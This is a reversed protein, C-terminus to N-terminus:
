GNWRVASPRHRWPHPLVSNTFWSDLFMILMHMVLVEGAIKQVFRSTATDVRAPLADHNVDYWANMSEVALSGQVFGSIATSENAPFMM